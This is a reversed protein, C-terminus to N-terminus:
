HPFRDPILHLWSRLIIVMFGNEYHELKGDM